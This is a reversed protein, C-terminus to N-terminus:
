AFIEVLPALSWPIRCLIVDRIGNSGLFKMLYHMIRNSGMFRDAARRMRTSAEMERGIRHMWMDEYDSLPRGKLVHDAAVMGALKGTIMAPAIGGGNTPMVMCAADGAALMAQGYTREIPGDVPLIKSVYSSRTGNSLRNKLLEHDYIFEDLLARINKEKKMFPARIGLGVNAVGSGKPIIWAYGGPAYNADFFMETLENEVEIREMHFQVNVASNPPSVYYDVPLGGARATASPFGDAAIVVKAKVAKEKSPGVTCSGNEVFTKAPSSMRIVAGNRQAKEAIWKEMRERDLINGDFDFEWYRGLGSYLRIRTCRNAITFSPLDFVDMCDTAKPLINPVEEPAPHFEGCRVPVGIEAKKDFVVVGVGKEAANLAAMLGAPGAGVVAVDFEEVL